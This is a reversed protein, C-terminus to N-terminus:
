RSLEAGRAAAASLTEALLKEFRQDADLIDLGARTMADAVEAATASTDLHERLWSLTFKM